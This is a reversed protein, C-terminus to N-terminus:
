SRAEGPASARLRNSLYRISGSAPGGDDSRRDDEFDFVDLGEFGDGRGALLWKLANESETWWPCRQKWDDELRRQLRPVVSADWKFHHVPYTGPLKGASGPVAIRHNGVVLSVGSGALMIKDVCGGLITGTIDTGLPFQRWPSVENRFAPLGNRAMRDVLFGAICGLSRARMFATLSSLSDSFEHFEDIDAWVIWPSISAIEQQISDHRARTVASDYPSAYTSYLRLDLDRLIAEARTALDAQVEPGYISDFHLNIYFRDVGCARYHKVFWPLLYLRQPDCTTILSIV